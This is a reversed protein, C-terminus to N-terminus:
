LLSEFHPLTELLNYHTASQPASFDWATEFEENQFHLQIGGGGGGGLSIRDKLQQSKRIKSAAAKQSKMMNERFSSTFHFPVSINLFHLNLQFNLSETCIKPFHRETEVTSNVHSHM